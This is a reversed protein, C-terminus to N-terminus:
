KLSKSYGATRENGKIKLCEHLYLLVSIKWTGCTGKVSSAAGSRITRSEIMMVTANPVDIGVEIVTTSVLIQIENRGFRDMIDDKQAQKMKGHLCAVQIQDGMEEQLAVTYDTVNEAEMTESEEVM